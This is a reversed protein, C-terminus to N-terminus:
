QSLLTCEGWMGKKNNRAELDAKHLQIQFKTDPKYAVAKAYGEKVLLENIFVDEIYVYRLLRGYRDTESKDKELRVYKGLVLETNKLSSELSFCEKDKEPADIGIYRVKEGTELEITDGDIIRKVLYRDSEETSEGAVQPTPSIITQISTQVDKIVPSKTLESILFVAILNITLFLFKSAHKKLYSM